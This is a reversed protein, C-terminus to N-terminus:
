GCAPSSEGLFDMHRRALCRGATGAMSCVSATRGFDCSSNGPCHSGDTRVLHADREDATAGKRRPAVLGACADHHFQAIAVAEEEVETGTADLVDEGHADRDRTDVVDEDRVQVHVM